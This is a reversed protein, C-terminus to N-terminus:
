NSSDCRLAPPESTLKSPTLWFLPKIREDVHCADIYGIAGDTEAVYRIMAEESQVTYPPQVGHFYLGNWYNVQSRPTSHLVQQSFKLRLPHESHLNVPHLAQGHSAYLKKRWFILGLEDAHIDPALGAQVPVIVAIIRNDEVAVVPKALLLGIACAAYLWRRMTFTTSCQM